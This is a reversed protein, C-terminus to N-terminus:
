NLLKFDVCIRYTRPAHQGCKVIDLIKYERNFKKCYKDIEKKAKDFEDEHYFAYLHIIANKKAVPLAIDLFEEATKPLPMIIRDFTKNLTPIIERVDGCFLEVNKCKNKAINKLGYEHGAPNIEVSIIEKADTNKSLVCPYPAAGSFMVLIDEGEQVLASIRKRETSLRASFYVEEVDVKITCNNERYEAVRTEEGALFKMKQARFVGDHIGDKRLVTKVSPNSNILAQAIEKEKGLLEDQIEIIAIGGLQDYATKAIEMEKSSLIESLVEKFPRATLEAKISKLLDKEVLEYNCKEECCFSDIIPFYIFDGEKLARYEHNIYNKDLLCRKVKQADALPIKVCRTM